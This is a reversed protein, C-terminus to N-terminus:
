QEQLLFRRVASIAVSDPGGVQVSHGANPVVVLKADPALAAERRAWALPTSLDREGNLLLVPVDPLERPLSPPERGSEPWHICTEILGNTAATERDFPWVSKQPIEKVAQKVARRREALGSDDQEWPFQMDSCLTAAHLGASLESSDFQRVVDTARQILGDLATPDGARADDLARPVDAIEQFTPDFISVLTIANLLGDRDDHHRVVWALDEVPDSPCSSSACADRLVYAARRLNARLFPDVGAHPVVSDLVLSRVHTPHELAYIQAVYTGYSVGDITWKAVGLAQRLLDLDAVTDVTRFYFRLKRLAQSCAQVASAPPALVDSGGVAEQLEACELANQGTGRQDLMVLRYEDLVDSLDRAVQGAFSVGGQGPGGTLALLIPGKAPEDAVAVPLDISGPQRGSWDLPVRLTSCTFGELGPCPGSDALRAPPHKGAPEESASPSPSM